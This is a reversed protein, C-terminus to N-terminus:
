MFFRFLMVKLTNDLGEEEITMESALMLFWTAVEIACIWECSLGTMLVIWWTTLTVVVSASSNTIWYPILWTTLMGLVLWMITMVSKRWVALLIKSEKDCGYWIWEVIIEWLSLSNKKFFLLLWMLNQSIEVLCFQGSCEKTSLSELLKSERGIKGYM